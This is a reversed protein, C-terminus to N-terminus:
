KERRRQQEQMMIDFTTAVFLFSFLIGTALPSRSFISVILTIFFTVQMFRTFEYKEEETEEKRKKM